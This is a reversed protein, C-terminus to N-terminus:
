CGREAIHADCVDHYGGSGGCMPCGQSPRRLQGSFPNRGVATRADRLAQCPGMNEDRATGMPTGTKDQLPAVIHNAGDPACDIWRLRWEADRILYSPDITCFARPDALLRREADIKGLLVGRATERDTFRATTAM